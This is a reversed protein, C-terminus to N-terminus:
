AGWKFEGGGFSGGIGLPGDSPYRAEDAPNYPRDPLNMLLSSSSGITQYGHLVGKPIILYQPSEEGMVFRMYRPPQNPRDDVLGVLIRGMWLVWLDTQEQHVHFARTEYPFNLSCYGHYAPDNPAGSESFGSVTTFQHRIDGNLFEMLWGREDLHKTLPRLVVGLIAGETRYADPHQLAYSPYSPM